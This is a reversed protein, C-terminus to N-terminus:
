PLLFALAKQKNRRQKVNMGSCARRKPFAVRLQRVYCLTYKVYFYLHKFTRICSVQFVVTNPIKVVENIFGALHTFFVAM